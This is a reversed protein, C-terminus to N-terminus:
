RQDSDDRDVAVERPHEQGQQEGREQSDLARRLHGLLALVQGLLALM